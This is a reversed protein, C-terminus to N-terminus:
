VGSAEFVREGEVFTLLVRANAIEAAPHEFPDRDLVVLDALKGVEISGTVDDLHNVYASGMTFAAIAEPLGLREDPLFPQAGVGGYPYDGPVQRNVAVHIEWLPNPSSVPWDSGFAM